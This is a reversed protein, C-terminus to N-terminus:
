LYKLRPHARCTAEMEIARNYGEETEFTMFVSCPTTIREFENEKLFNIEQDIKRMKDWSEKRIAQGRERLLSIIKQNKFALTTVAVKTRDEPVVEYGLDPLQSVREEM